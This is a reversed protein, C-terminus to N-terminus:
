IFLDLCTNANKLMYEFEIIEDNTELLQKMVQRTEWDYGRFLFEEMLGQARQRDRTVSDLEEAMLVANSPILKKLRSIDDLYNRIRVDQSAKGLKFKKIEEEAAEARNYEDIATKM